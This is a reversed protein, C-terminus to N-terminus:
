DINIKRCVDIGVNIMNMKGFHKNVKKINLNSKSKLRTNFDHHPIFPRVDVEFM